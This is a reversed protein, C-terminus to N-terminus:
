RKGTNQGVAQYLPSRLLRLQSKAAKGYESDASDAALKEYIEIAQKPENKLELARAVQLEAYGKAEGGLDSAKRYVGLADDYKKDTEYAQGENILVLQREAPLLENFQLAKGYWEAAQAAPTPSEKPTEGKVALKGAEDYYHDGLTIAALYTARNKGNDAYMKKLADWRQADASKNATYYAEWAKELHKGSYGDWAYAGLVILLVVGILPLVKMRQEALYDLAAQGKVVFTDPRKLAKRDIKEL